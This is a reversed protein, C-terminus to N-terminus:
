YNWQRRRCLVWMVVKGVREKWEGKWGGRGPRHGQIGLDVSVEVVCKSVKIGVERKIEWLASGLKM